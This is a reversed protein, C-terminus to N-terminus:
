NEYLIEEAALIYILENKIKNIEMETEIDSNIKSGRDSKINTDHRDKNKATDLKVIKSSPRGGIIEKMMMKYEEQNEPNDRVLHYFKMLIDETSMEFLEMYEELSDSEEELLYIIQEALKKILKEQDITNEM